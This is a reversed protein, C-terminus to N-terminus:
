RRVILSGFQSARQRAATVRTSRGPTTRLTVNIAALTKQGHGTISHARAAQRAEFATDSTDTLLAERM